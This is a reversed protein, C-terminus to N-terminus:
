PYTTISRLCASLAQLTDESHGEIKMLEDCIRGAEGTKTIKCLSLAKLAQRM